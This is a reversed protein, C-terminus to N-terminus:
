LRPNIHRWAQIAETGPELPRGCICEEDDLLRDVFQNSVESPIAGQDRLKDLDKATAEVAPM